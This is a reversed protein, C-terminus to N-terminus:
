QMWHEAFLVLDTISVSGLMDLDSQGCFNNDITCGAQMWRQALRAFDGLDVDCDHDLDGTSQTSFIWLPGEVQACDTRVVVRWYYNQGCELPGVPCWPQPNNMSVPLLNQPDAGLYVDFVPIQGSFETTRTAKEWDPAGGDPYVASQDCDGNEVFDANGAFLVGEVACTELDVVASGSNGMYTDLNAQFSGPALNDQVWANDAYKRPLGLTHGIVALQRADAIKGDRRILLPQHSLVPRDLRVLAWDSDATQQRSVLGGCFYVESADFTTVPEAANLMTFGFVFARDTCLEEDSVCHGTTAILDPAVLFATCVAAVPQDLYPETPCLPRGAAALYHDALTETSLSYTGDGNDVLASLPVMAATSDGVARLLADTVQYEDMRDDAGYIGKMIPQGAATNRLIEAGENWTLVTQRDVDLAYLAPGPNTPPELPMCDPAVLVIYEGIAGRYGAIRILVTRGAALYVALRSQYGCDDDNCALEVGGCADRVSLTTDFLSGCLSIEYSASASATFTHWVDLTDGESCSSELGGTAGRTTGAYPLDLALPIADVCEDHPPPAVNETITLLYDGMDGDYGAIRIWVTQGAALPLALESQGSCSDDNCALELGGCADYVSLTTDYGSGCLSILWDASRPATFTHWVDYHDYGDACTCVIDTLANWTTGSYPLGEQVDIAQACLDNAPQGFREYVALVYDGTQNNRGAVRLYYTQGATMLVPIESQLGCMNDNCAVQSSLSCATCVALTTDFSSGCLSVTHYGTQSPTFTHWVDLRDGTGCASTQTGTAGASTGYFPTDLDVPIAGTCLDHPPVQSYRTVNLVYGGVEGDYGAIRILYTQSGTLAATIKSQRGCADDNCAVENYQADFVVLTTDFDSGCLSIDYTTSVPATFTHWVDYFDYDIDCSGFSVGTADVTTGYYPTNEAVEIAELPGDNAPQNLRETVLLSYSGTDGDYGAVRILVTQGAAVQAVAESQFGCMDDNCALEAGGCADYVSLTTDFGSGCLSFTHFGTQAATFRHWVDRTDGYSCSSTQSGGAGVSSGYYVMGEQVPIATSCNDHVPAAGLPTFGPLCLALIIGVSCVNKM